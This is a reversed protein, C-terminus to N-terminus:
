DLSDSFFVVMDFLIVNFVSYFFYGSIISSIIFSRFVEKELVRLNTLDVKFFFWERNELSVNYVSFDVFEM